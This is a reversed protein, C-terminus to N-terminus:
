QVEITLRISEVRLAVFGFTPGTSAFAIAVVAVISNVMNGSGHEVSGDNLANNKPRRNLESDKVVRLKIFNLLLVAPMFPQHLATETLAGM